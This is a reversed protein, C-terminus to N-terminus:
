CVLKKHKGKKNRKIYGKYYESKITNEVTQENSQEYTSNLSQETNKKYIGGMTKMFSSCLYNKEKKNYCEVTSDDFLENFKQLSLRPICKKSNSDLQRSPSMSIFKNKNSFKKINSINQSLKLNLQSDSQNFSSSQCSLRNKSLLNSRNANLETKMETQLSSLASSPYNCGM